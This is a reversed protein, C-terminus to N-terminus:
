VFVNKSCFMSKNACFSMKKNFYPLNYKLSCFQIYLKTEITNITFIIIGYVNIIFLLLYYIINKTSLSYFVM